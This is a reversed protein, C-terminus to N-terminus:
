LDTRGPTGGDPERAAGRAENRIAAIQSQGGVGEAGVPRRAGSAWFGVTHLLHPPRDQQRRWRIVANEGDIVERARV